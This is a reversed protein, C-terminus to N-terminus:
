VDKQYQLHKEEYYVPDNINRILEFKYTTLLFISKPIENNRLVIRYNNCYYQIIAIQIAQM